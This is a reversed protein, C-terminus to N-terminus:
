NLPHIVKRHANMTGPTAIFGYLSSQKYVQENIVVNADPVDFHVGECSPEQTLPCIHQSPINSPNIMEKSFLLRAIDESPPKHVETSAGGPTV